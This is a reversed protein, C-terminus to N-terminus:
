IVIQFGTNVCWSDTRFSSYHWLCGILFRRSATMTRGVVSISMFRGIVAGPPTWPNPPTESWYVVHLRNVGHPVDLEVQFLLDGCNVDPWWKLSSWAARILGPSDALKSFSYTLLYYVSICLDVSTINYITLSTLLRGMATWRVGVARKVSLHRSNWSTLTINQSWM